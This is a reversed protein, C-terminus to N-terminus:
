RYKGHFNSYKSTGSFETKSNSIKWAFLWLTFAFVCKTNVIHIKLFYQLQHSLTSFCPVPLCAVSSLLVGHLFFIGNAHLSALALICVYGQLTYYQNSKWVLMPWAFASCHWTIFNLWWVNSWDRQCVVIVRSWTLVCQKLVPTSFPVFSQVATCSPQPYLSV